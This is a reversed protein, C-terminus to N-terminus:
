VLGGTLAAAAYEDIFEHAGGSSDFWHYGTEDVADVYITLVWGDAVRYLHADACHDRRGPLFEELYSRLPANPHLAAIIEEVSRDDGHVVPSSVNTM